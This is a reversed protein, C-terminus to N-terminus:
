DTAGGGGHRGPTAPKKMKMKVEAMEALNCPCKIDDRFNVNQFQDM